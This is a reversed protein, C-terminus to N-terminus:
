LFMGIIEKQIEDIIDISEPTYEGGLAMMLSSQEMRGKIAELMPYFPKYKKRHRLYMPNEGYVTHQIGDIEYSLQSKRKKM